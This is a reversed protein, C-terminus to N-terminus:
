RRQETIGILRSVYPKVDRVVDKMGLIIQNHNIKSSCYKIKFRKILMNVYTRKRYANKTMTM